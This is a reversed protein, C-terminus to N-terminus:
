RPVVLGPPVLECPLENPVRPLDTPRDLCSALATPVEADPLAADDPVNPRQNDGCAVLLVVLFTLRKM